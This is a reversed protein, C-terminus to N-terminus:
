GRPKRPARQRSGAATSPRSRGPGRPAPDDDEDEDRKGRLEEAEAQTLKNDPRPRYSDQELEDEDDETRRSRVPTDDDYFGDDDAPRRKGTMAEERELREAEARAAERAELAKRGKDRAGAALNLGAAIQDAGLRSKSPNAMLADEASTFSWPRIFEDREVRRVGEVCDQNLLNHDEPVEIVQGPVLKPCLRKASAKGQLHPPPYVPVGCAAWQKGMRKIRARVMAMDM